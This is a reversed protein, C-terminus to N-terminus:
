CRRNNKDVVYELRLKITKEGPKSVHNKHIALPSLSQNEYYEPHSINYAGTSYGRTQEMMRRVKLIYDRTLM